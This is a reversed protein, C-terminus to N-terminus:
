LFQALRFTSTSKQFAVTSAGISRWGRDGLSLEDLSKTGVQIVRMAGYKILQEDGFVILASCGLVQVQRAGRDYGAHSSYSRQGGLQPKM